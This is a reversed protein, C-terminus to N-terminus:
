IFMWINKKSYILNNLIYMYKQRFINTGSTINAYEDNNASHLIKLRFTLPSYEVNKPFVKRYFSNWKISSMLLVAPRYGDLHPFYLEVPQKRQVFFHCSIWNLRPSWPFENITLFTLKTSHGHHWPFPFNESIRVVVGSDALQTRSQAICYATLAKVRWFLV